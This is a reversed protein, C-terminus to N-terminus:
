SLLWSKAWNSSRLPFIKKSIFSKWTSIVSLRKLNLKMVATKRFHFTSSFVKTKTKVTSTHKDFSKILSIIPDLNESAMPFSNPKPISFSLVENCFFRNFIECLEEDISITKGDDALNIKEGKIFKTHIFTPWDELFKQQWYNKKNADTRNKLLTNRLRSRKM